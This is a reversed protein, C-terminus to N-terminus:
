GRGKIVGNHELFITVLTDRDPMRELPLRCPLETSAPTADSCITSIEVYTTPPVLDFPDDDIWHFLVLKRDNIVGVEGFDFRVQVILYPEILIGDGVSIASAQGFCKGEFEPPCLTDEDGFEGVAAPLGFQTAPVTAQTGQPNGASLATGGLIGGTTIADGEPVIYHITFDDSAAMVTTEAEATFTDQHASHPQDNGGEGGRATVMFDDLLPGLPMTPSTDFILVVLAGPGPSFQGLECFPDEAPAANCTGQTTIARQYTFGVPTDAELTVHNVTTGGGNGVQVVYSVPEGRTVQTPSSVIEVALDSAALAPVSGLPLLSLSTILSVVVRPLRTR